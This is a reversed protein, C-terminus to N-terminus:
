VNDRYDLEAQMLGKVHTPARKQTELIAKIHDTSLESLPVFKRPQDGNKGFTGWHFATRNAEHDETLYVSLEEYDERPARRRLYLTGGDVAYTEGNADEHAVYDHQYYSTIVTGDPTRIKNLLIQDNM